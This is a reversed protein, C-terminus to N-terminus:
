TIDNGYKKFTERLLKIDGHKFTLTFKDIVGTDYNTISHYWDVNGLFAGESQTLIYKKATFARCLGQITALLVSSSKSVKRIVERNFIESMKEYLARKYVSPRGFNVGEKLAKIPKKNISNNSYGIFVSGLAMGCDLFRNDDTPFLYAGQEKKIEFSGSCCYDIYRKSVTSNIDLM